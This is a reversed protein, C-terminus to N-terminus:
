ILASTTGCAWMINSSSSSPLSSSPISYIKMLWKVLCSFPSISVRHQWHLLLWPAIQSNPPNPLTWITHHRPDPTCVNWSSLQSLTTLQHSQDRVRWIYKGTDSNLHYHYFTSHRRRTKVAHPPLVHVQHPDVTREKGTTISSWTDEGQRLQTPHCSMLKYWHCSLGATVCSIQWHDLHQVEQGDCDSCEIDVVWHWSSIIKTRCRLCWM